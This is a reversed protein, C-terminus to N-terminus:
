EADSDETKAKVAKKKVATKKVVTKRPAKPAPAPQKAKRDAIEAAILPLLEDAALKQKAVGSESLRVANTRLAEIEKDTMSPLKEAITM